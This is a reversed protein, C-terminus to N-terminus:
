TMTLGSNNTPGSSRGPQLAFKPVSLSEWERRLEAIPRPSRSVNTYRMDILAAWYKKCKPSGKGFHEGTWTYLYGEFEKKVPFTMLCFGLLEDAKAVSNANPNRNRIRVLQLIIEERLPPDALAMSLIKTAPEDPNVMQANKAAYGDLVYALVLKSALIADKRRTVSDGKPDDPQFGFSTLPFHLPKASYVKFSDVIKQKGFLRAFFSAKRAWDDVDRWMRHNMLDPHSKWEADLEIEWLRIERHIRRTEDKDRVAVELEKECFEKESLGLLRECEKMESTLHNKPYKTSETLV